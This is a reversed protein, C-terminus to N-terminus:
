TLVLRPVPVPALGKEYEALLDSKAKAKAREIAEEATAAAVTERHMRYTEPHWPEEPEIGAVLDKAAKLLRRRVKIIAYDSSCLHEQTRDAIPGWQNEMMAIDQLPFTKIGTYSFNRQAVRDVNYDNFVNEKTKWTGPIMEPQTWGGTKYEAVEAATIPQWAWRLRYFM